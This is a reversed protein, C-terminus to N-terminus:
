SRFCCGLRFVILVIRKYEKRFNNNLAGYVMANLCSNFYALFYSATFLWGPVAAALRTDLAVALGILNIPAWCVAFLVFVAFMTLFGRLDKPRGGGTGPKPRGGGPKVRRRARLVLVWIRLYCFSVVAMPLVFHVAVVAVTYSSSVSQAFTCSYVRPDYRLSEMFWNPAIALVTLAWVLLVYCLTRGGSFLRDYALSHCVYCYRNVAIGTINFISGIFSLGMLFGSVQCHLVGAVWGGNFIASLVLPYPYVAVLLDALALSVVFANREVRKSGRVPMQVSVNFCVSVVVLLNGLIDVVITTILVCALLAVTWPFPQAGGEEGRGGPTANRPTQGWTGAAEVWSPSSSVSM